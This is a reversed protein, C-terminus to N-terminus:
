WIDRICEVRIRWWFCGCSFRDRYNVGWEMYYMKWLWLWSWWWWWKRLCREEWFWLWVEEWFWLINRYCVNRMWVIWVWWVIFNFFKRFWRMVFFFRLSYYWFWVYICILKGICLWIYLRWNCSISWKGWLWYEGWWYLLWKLEYRINIVKFGWKLSIM